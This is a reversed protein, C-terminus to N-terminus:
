RCTELWSIFFCVESLEPRASPVINIYVLNPETWFPRLGAAWWRAFYEFKERGERAPIELQLQGIPRANGEAARAGLFATVADLERGDVDIKLIDVFMDQSERDNDSKTTSRANHARVCQPSGHALRADLVQPRRRRRRRENM